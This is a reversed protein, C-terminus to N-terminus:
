GDSPATAAPAPQKPLIRAKETWGGSDTQQWYHLEHSADRCDVWHRRARDLAAQDRGDFLMLVRAYTGASPSWAGDVLLLITANNPNEEAATLWIPQRDAYGDAASGHALWSSPDWTWLLSNLADVREASGAMVVARQGSAQVKVLLRPLADELPWRQLHYFDFRSM